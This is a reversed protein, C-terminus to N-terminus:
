AVKADPIPAPPPLDESASAAAFAIVARVDAEVLSPFDNLIAAVPEDHALHLLALIEPQSRGTELQAELARWESGREVGGGV